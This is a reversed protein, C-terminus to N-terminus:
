AAEKLEIGEFQLADLVAKRTIGFDDMIEEITEEASYRGKVVWTPLGEVVPAGFSVRPDIIVLSQRGAPHWRLALEYEYDFTAFKQEIMDAWALQGFRDAVIIRELNPDPDFQNYAMLIHMGETKFQYRALPFEVNFSQAVYDRARRIRPMPVGQARFFSVFAVEVLEFYNLPRGKEHGPLVPAGRYHWSAVTNPHTQAYRAVDTVRYAPLYLRRFWSAAETVAIGGPM